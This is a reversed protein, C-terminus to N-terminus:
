IEEGYLQRIIKINQIYNEEVSSITVKPDSGTFVYFAREIVLTIYDKNDKIPTTIYHAVNTHHLKVNGLIEATRCIHTRGYVRADGHVRANGYVQASGFIKANNYVKANEFVWAFGYIQASGYIKADEWVEANGSVKAKGYVRAAGFVRVNGSVCAKGYIKATNYVQVSDNVEANGFVCANDYVWCDGEHSLNEEKEILGGFDGKKVDAFDKLAIIRLLGSTPDSETKYKREM